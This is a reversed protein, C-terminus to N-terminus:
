KAAPFLENQILKGIVDAPLGESFPINPELGNNAFVVIRGGTEPDYAVLTQYGPVSGNHGLMGPLIETIALGYRSHPSGAIQEKHTAPKLLSGTGLAKAWIAMDAITAIGAGSAESSSLSFNTADVPPKDKPWPVVAAKPDGGNVLADYAKMGDVNTGFFYGREVPEPVSADEPKPLSTNKMGLPAFIREAFFDRLDKGSLKEVILGLIETNTNSYHFGAGPEFYFPHKLAIAIAEETTWIRDPAADLAVNYGEDETFNYIGSTMNLLQRITISGGNPVLGPLYKEVPDDLGIKGEDVLLLTAVGTLTKTVSGIRHHNLASSPADTSLDAKGFGEVWTGEGPVDVFVVIGPTVWGAMREEVLTRLKGVFDPEAVALAQLPALATLTALLFARALAPRAVLM